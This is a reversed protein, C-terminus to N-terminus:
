LLWLLLNPNSCQLQLLMVHIMKLCRQRKFIPPKTNPGGGDGGDKVVVNIVVDTGKSIVEQATKNETLRSLLYHSLHKPIQTTLWLSTIRKQQLQIRSVSRRAVLSQVLSMDSMSIHASDSDRLALTQPRSPTWLYSDYEPLCVTICVVGVCWFGFLCLGLICVNICVGVCLM